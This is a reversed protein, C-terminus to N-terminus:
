PRPLPPTCALCGCSAGGRMCAALLPQLFPPARGARRAAGRRPRVQAAHGHMATRLKAGAELLRQVGFNGNLSLSAEKLRDPDALAAYVRLLRELGNTQIAEVVSATSGMIKFADVNVGMDLLPRALGLGGKERILAVIEDPALKLVDKKNFNLASPPSPNPRRCKSCFERWVYNQGGCGNCNWRDDASSVASHYASSPANPRGGSYAARGDALAARAAAAAKREMIARAQAATSAAKNAKELFALVSPDGGILSKYGDIYARCFPCKVGKDAKFINKARMNEVCAFCVAHSCPQFSVCAPVDDRCIMCEEEGDKVKGAAMSLTVAARGQGWVSATHMTSM